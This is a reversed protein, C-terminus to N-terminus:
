LSEDKMSTAGDIEVKPGFETICVGNGPEEKLIIKDKSIAVSGETTDDYFGRRIWCDDFATAPENKSRGFIM